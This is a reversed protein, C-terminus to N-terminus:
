AKTLQHLLFIRYQRYSIDPNGQLAEGLPIMFYDRVLGRLSKHACHFLFFAKAVFSYFFNKRALGGGLPIMFYDRVLGRLSKYTSAIFFYSISTLFYRSKRALGGELLIMINEWCSNFKCKKLRELLAGVAM